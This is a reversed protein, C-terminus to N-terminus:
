KVVKRGEMIYIGRPLANLDTGVYRGDITYIRTSIGSSPHQTTITHIGTAVDHIYSLSAIGTSTDYTINKLAKNTPLKATKSGNYWCFNPQPKADSLETVNLTDPNMNGSGPFLDGRMSTYYNTNAAIYASLCAGDAPVVAMGPYGAQNNFRTNATLDGSPRNVHYVLLGNGYMYSNWKQRQICEVMFYENSNDPNTIKYATGGAETSNQISISMDEGLEEITVPWEMENKEFATYAAPCYGYHGYEGGDMLDWYEMEQNDLYASPSTPYFDPLGLAHSLEHCTVGVGTIAPFTGSNSITGSSDVYFPSLEGAMSYWRVRKGGIYTNQPTWTNAWVTTGGGGYNQGCGAYIVYVCDITSGDSSFATIDDDSVQGSAVLSDVADKVLARPDEDNNYDENVGGYRTELTDITVPEYVKFKVTFTGGSMDSFYQAVSGHNYHNGNGLNTQSTGNFFQEFAERPSNVSLKVDKFNVLIVPITVTGSHPVYNYSSSIVKKQGKAAAADEREMIMSTGCRRPRINANQWDDQASASLTSLSLLLFLSIISKIM